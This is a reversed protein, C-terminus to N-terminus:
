SRLHKALNRDDVITLTKGDCFGSWSIAWIHYCPIYVDWLNLQLPTTFYVLRTYAVMDFGAQLCFM